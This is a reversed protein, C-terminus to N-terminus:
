RMVAYDPSILIIYVGIRVRYDLYDYYPNQQMQDLSTRMLERTHDSMSGHTFVKDLENIFTETDSALTKYYDIDFDVQTENMWEGEWTSMIQGWSVIWRNVQNMYGPATLTNHLNFEPAVLGEDAIEGNPQHDPLYFNFVSPSDMLDQNVWISFNYNVNWYYDMPNSKNVARAFHVYKILPEKLKSNKDDSLFSCARAEGDMLIAKVVAAMDGRVGNGNNNFVEAVRAVYAGSPNSKVLRQILRYSIFPGTNPHTALNHIADNIDQMGTQGTPVTYGKLLSKPGAEHEEEYMMMPRTMDATWIGRGFYLNDSGPYPNEVVGSVGLGTFIKAFERIDDQGYTPIFDGNADTLRSGDMNLEYLGISFLQMIERAYNEDPHINNAPDAKPNNLHSLYEGMVPHLTVDRLLNEYNGFAHKALMDYYSALGDGFNTLDSKRSVVFIESLAFAVRHRLLDDNRMIQDWWAYNFDWWRPRFEDVQPADGKAAMSDLTIQYIQEVKPLMMTQPLQIQADIWSEIGLNSVDQIHTLDYGLAAQALFRSAEMDKADLGNGNITNNATAAKPWKSQNHQSSATVSIGQANGGGIYSQALSGQVHCLLLSCVLVCITKM